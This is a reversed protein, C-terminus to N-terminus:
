HGRRVVEGHRAGRDPVVSSSSLGESGHPDAELILGQADHKL